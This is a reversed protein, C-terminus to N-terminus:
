RFIENMYFIKTTSALGRVFAMSLEFTIYINTKKKTKHTYIQKEDDDGDDDYDNGCDNTYMVIYSITTTMIATAGNSCLRRNRHIIM